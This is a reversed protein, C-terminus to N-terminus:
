DLYHTLNLLFCITQSHDITSYFLYRGILFMQRAFTGNYLKLVHCEEKMVVKTTHSLNNDQRFAFNKGLLKLEPLTAKDIKRFKKKMTGHITNTGYKESWKWVLFGLCVYIWWKRKTCDHGLSTDNTNKL